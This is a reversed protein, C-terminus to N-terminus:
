GTQKRAASEMINNHLITGPAAMLSSFDVVGGRGSSVQRRLVGCPASSNNGRGARAADRATSTTSVSVSPNLTKMMGNSSSHRLLPPAVHCATASVARTGLCSAVARSLATRGNSGVNM